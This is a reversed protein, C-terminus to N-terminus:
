KLEVGNKMATNIINQGSLTTLIVDIKQDELETKLAALFKIKNDLNLKEKEPGDILIDIDGGKRADDTRSGFIIVKSTKGFYKNAYRKITQKEQNNLRM